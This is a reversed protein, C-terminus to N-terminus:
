ISKRMSSRAVSELGLLLSLVTESLAAQEEGTAAGDEWQAPPEIAKGAQEREAALKSEAEKPKKSEPLRQVRLESHRFREHARRAGLPM